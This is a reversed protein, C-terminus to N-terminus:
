LGILYQEPRRDYNYLPKKERICFWTYDIPEMNHDYDHGCTLHIEAVSAEVCEWTKVWDIGGSCCAFVFWAETEQWDYDGGNGFFQWIPLGRQHASKLFRDALEIRDQELTVQM